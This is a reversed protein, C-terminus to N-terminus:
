RGKLYREVDARLPAFPRRELFGSRAEGAALRGSDGDEAVHLEGMGGRGLLELLRYRDALVSGGRATKAMTASGAPAGGAGPRADGGLTTRTRAVAEGVM